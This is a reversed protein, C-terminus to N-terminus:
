LTLLTSWTAAGVIGDVELRFFTQWAKVAAETAPGFKGDLALKAGAKGNLISQAAKVDGGTAGSQITAVNV